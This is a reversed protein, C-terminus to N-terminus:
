AAAASQPSSLRAALQISCASANKVSTSARERLVATVLFAHGVHGVGPLADHSVEVERFRKEAAIMELRLPHAGRRVVDEVERRWLGAPVVVAHDEAVPRPVELPVPRHMLEQPEALSYLSAVICPNAFVSASAPTPIVRVPVHSLMSQYLGLTGAFISCSARWM